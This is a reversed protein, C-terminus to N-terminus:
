QPDRTELPDVNVTLLYDSDVSLAETIGEDQMVVFSICDTIGVWRWAPHERRVAVARDFLDRDTAIIATFPDREFRKLFPDFLGWMGHKAFFDSTEGLVATTTVRYPHPLKTAWALARAHAKDSVLASAILYGSSLFDLAGTGKWGERRRGLVPTAYGTM